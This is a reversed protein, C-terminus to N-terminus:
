GQDQLLTRAHTREHTRAHNHDIAGNHLTLLPPLSGYWGGGEFLVLSCPAGRQRLTGIAGLSSMPKLRCPGRMMVGGMAVTPETGEALVLTPSAAGLTVTASATPNATAHKRARKRHTTFAQLPHADLM